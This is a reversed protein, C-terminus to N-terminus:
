YLEASRVSDVEVAATRRRCHQVAGDVIRRVACVRPGHAFAIDRADGAHLRSRLATIGSPAVQIIATVCASELHVSCAFQTVRCPHSNKRAPPKGLSPRPVLWGGERAGVKHLLGWHVENLASGDSYSPVFIPDWPDCQQPARARGKEKKSTLARGRHQSLARHHKDAAKTAGSAPALLLNYGM